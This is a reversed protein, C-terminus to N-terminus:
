FGSFMVYVIPRWLGTYYLFVGVVVWTAVQQAMSKNARSCVECTCHYDHTPTLFNNDEEM